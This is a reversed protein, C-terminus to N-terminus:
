PAWVLLAVKSLLLTRNHPHLQPTYKRDLLFLFLQFQKRNIGRCLRLFPIWDITAGFGERVSIPAAIEVEAMLEM